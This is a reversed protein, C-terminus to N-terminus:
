AQVNPTFSGILNQSHFCLSEPSSQSHLAQPRNGANFRSNVEEKSPQISAGPSSSIPTLDPQDVTQTASCGRLSLQPVRSNTKDAISSTIYGPGFESSAMSNSMTSPFPPLEDWRTDTQGLFSQPTALGQSYQSMEAEELDLNILPEPSARHPKLTIEGRLMSNHQADPNSEGPAHTPPRPFMLSELSELTSTSM